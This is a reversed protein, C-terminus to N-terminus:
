IVVASTDQRGFFNFMSVAVEFVAAVTHHHVVLGSLPDGCQVLYLWVAVLSHRCVAFFRTRQVNCAHPSGSQVIYLCPLFLPTNGSTHCACFLRTVNLTPWWMAAAVFYVCIVLAHDHVHLLSTPLWMELFPQKLQACTGCLTYHRSQNPPAKQFITRLFTIINQMSKKIIPSWFYCLFLCVNQM